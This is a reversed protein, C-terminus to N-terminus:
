KPFLEAFKLHDNWVAKHQITSDTNFKSNSSKVKYIVLLKIFLQKRLKFNNKAWICILQLAWSSYPGVAIMVQQFYETKHTKHKLLKNPIEMYLKNPSSCIGNYLKNPIQM